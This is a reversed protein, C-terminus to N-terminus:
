GVIWRGLAIILGILGGVVAGNLRIYQLDAGVREEIQRVLTKPDQKELNERVTRGIQHHHRQVLYNVNSRVWEDFRARRNPEDLLELIGTHLKQDVFHSLDSDPDELDEDLQRRLRSLADRVLPGSELSQIVASRLREAQGLAEPDGSALRNAYRRIAGTIAQRLPHEPDATASRLESSAYNCAAEVIKRQVVRRRLFFPVLRKGGERLKTASRKIWYHLEAATREREALNALSLAVSEFAVAASPHELARALADGLSSNIAVESLQRRLIRDLPDALKPDDLLRALARLVDRVPAGLRELHEPDRLWDVVLESPAFRELQAGIARPSLWEDRVVSEIGEILRQRRTLLIATHPIPIGLPHRFLATVAFWDALAGVLAAEFGGNLIRLWAAGALPGAALTVHTGGAGIVAILLSM